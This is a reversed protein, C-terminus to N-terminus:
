TLASCYDQVQKIMSQKEKEELFSAEFSNQALRCIEANSLNLSEAIALYNDTVYGGFYAPDDSNVTVLLGREMLKKLPHFRLDRVVKLKLNSLPCLTLPIRRQALETLLSEDDLTNNGHDVRSVKLLDLAERIYAAPGEEGAHAVTVFGADRAMGFVNAFKAPPHGLESSDLGVGQILNKYPIAQQLTRIANKENLHRLFCMILSTSIGFQKRADNMARHIGAVVVGFDVGRTTHTQPDFFIETHIVRDNYAKQLYAFTLDYFDQEYILVKAGAYYLDLFDQLNSFNYARKLEDVTHYKLKVNNRRAIAFMLEPEFTGEIHVHLEAKPIGKIFSTTTEELMVESIKM